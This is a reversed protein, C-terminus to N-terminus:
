QPGIYVAHVYHTDLVHIIDIVLATFPEVTLQCTVVQKSTSNQVSNVANTDTYVYKDSLKTVTSAKSKLFTSPLYLILCFHEVHKGSWYWRMDTHAYIVGRTELIDGLKLNDQILAKGVLHSMYHIVPVRAVNHLPPLLKRGGRRIRVAADPGSMSAHCIRRMNNGTPRFPTFAIKDSVLGIRPQPVSGAPKSLFMRPLTTMNREPTYVYSKNVVSHDKIRMLLSSDRRAGTLNMTSKMKVPVRKQSMMNLTNVLLSENPLRTVSKISLPQYRLKEMTLMFKQRTQPANAKPHAFFKNVFGNKSIFCMDGICVPKAGYRASYGDINRIHTDDFSNVFIVKRKDANRWKSKSTLKPKQAVM